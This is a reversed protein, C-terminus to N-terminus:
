SNQVEAEPIDGFVEAEVSTLIDDLLNSSKANKQSNDPIKATKSIINWYRNLDQQKKDGCGALLELALQESVTKKCPDSLRARVQELTLTNSFLHLYFISHKNLYNSVTTTDPLIPVPQKVKRPRGRKRKQPLAEGVPVNTDTTRSLKETETSTAPSLKEERREGSKGREGDISAETSTSTSTHSLKEVTTTLLVEGTARTEAETTTTKAINQNNSTQNDSNSLKQNTFHLTLQQEQKDMETTLTTSVPHSPDTFIAEALPQQVLSTLPMDPQDPHRFEIELPELKSTSHSNNSNTTTM